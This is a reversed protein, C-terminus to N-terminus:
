RKLKILPLAKSFGTGTIQLVYMSPSMNLTNITLQNEGEALEREEVFVEKGALNTLSIRPRRFIRSNVSVNLQEIFPNPFVTVSEEIEANVVKIKLTDNLMYDDENEYGFVSIEYVGGLDMDAKRDFVVTVSDQYPAIKNKFNQIVPYKNNVSYALKFGNITDTGVNLVKVSVSEKGYIEKQVPTIIRAVELDKQIYNVRASGSFDILDIWAADAGQSVSNDKKYIWEMKNYGAPVPVSQRIWNTEGSRRVIESGNLNFQFYDYTMESSVKYYFRMTDPEPFFTRLILVSSSNHSISGSRASFVGDFTNATSIIWPKTSLNIWPFVEFSASEFSERIRGVRFQFNKDVIYPNCDLTTLFSFYDGLQATQSLKVAVTITSIEGFQLVGSKVDSDIIELEPDQSSVTIQGSTNSSGYNRVQFVLNFEEGPDAVNNNNGNVSDDIICNVIELAPSHVNFDISYKKETKRDRLTLDVPIIGMDPVNEAITLSFNDNLTIESKAALTGILASNKNITVWTSSSSISATLDNAQKLGLNSIKV